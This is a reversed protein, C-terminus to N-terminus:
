LLSKEPLQTTLAQVVIEPSLALKHAEYLKTAEYIYALVSQLKTAKVPDGIPMWVHKTPVHKREEGHVDRKVDTGTRLIHRCM